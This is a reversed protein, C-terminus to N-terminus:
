WLVERGCSPCFRMKMSIRTTCAGCLWDKGRRAPTQPRIRMICVEADQHLHRICLLADRDNEADEDEVIYPCGKAWCEQQELGWESCAELGQHVKSWEVM